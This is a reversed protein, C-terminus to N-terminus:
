FALDINTYLRIVTASWPSGDGVYSLTSGDDLTADGAIPTVGFAQAVAAKVGIGLATSRGAERFEVVLEAFPSVTRGPVYVAYVPDTAARSCTIAGDATDTCSLPIGPTTGYRVGLSPRVALPGGLVLERGVRLGLDGALPDFVTEGRGGAYSRADWSGLLGILLPGLPQTFALEAAGGARLNAVDAGFPVAIGLSIELRSVQLAALGESGLEKLEMAVQSAAGVNVHISHGNILYDGEPLWVTTPLDTPERLALATKNILAKLEPDIVLSTIELQLRSRIGPYPAEITLSGFTTVLFDRLGAAQERAADTPALDVARTALAAARDMRGLEYYVQAGLWHLDFSQAGDGMLGAEIEVAADDYWKNKAFQRAQALHFGVDDAAAAYPVLLPFLMM